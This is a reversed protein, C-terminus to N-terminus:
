PGDPLDRALLRAFALSEESWTDRPEAAARAFLWLRVRDADVDSLEAFHRITRDPESRLRAGCNLLHQTADYAADGVFPKPDVVLWPERQARLVNGAHLDTALLVDSEAAVALAEFMSLGARVLAPNSWRQEATRTEECWFAVMASLPRFRRPPPVRWLRRLLKAIIIDQAAEPLVRLTTGPDCRELLLAHRSEDAELLRVTPDGAWFRLGDIEQDAEFHPVGIKLVVQEGADRTAPAVWAIGDHDFPAGVRLSWRAALEDVLDPRTM